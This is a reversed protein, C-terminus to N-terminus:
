RRHHHFATGRVAPEGDVVRDVSAISWVDVEDEAGLKGVCGVTVSCAPCEGHVGLSARLEAPFRELLAELSVGRSRTDPGIGVAELPGPGPQGDRRSVPGSPAFLYLYRNGPPPAFGVEGPHVSYRRHTSFFDEERALITRLNSRCEGEKPPGRVLNCGTLALGAVTLWVKVARLRSGAKLGPTRGLCYM